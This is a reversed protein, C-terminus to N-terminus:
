AARLLFTPVLHHDVLCHQMLWTRADDADDDFWRRSSGLRFSYGWVDMDRMIRRRGVKPLEDALLIQLYCVASEELHDGGADGALGARREPTMCVIHCTEHLLSHLPTDSRAYVTLGAIGAEPEGWYSGPISENAGVTSLIVGFRGLLAEVRALPVDVLRLM